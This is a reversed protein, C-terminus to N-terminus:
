KTSADGDAPPKRRSFNFRNETGNVLRKINSKHKVIVLIALLSIVAPMLHRPERTDDLLWVGAGVAAAATISAVSVYRTALFVAVWLALGLLASCPAVGIVIGAGTAVGKGGKFGLFLPFSHGFLVAVAAAMVAAVPAAGGAGTAMWALKPIVAVSVLGKAMDLVFTAVGLKGGLTRFVNTAGINGSGVTRIDIGRSLGALYGFPISGVLYAAVVSLMCSVVM